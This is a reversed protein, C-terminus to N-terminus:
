KNVYEIMFEILVEKVNKGERAVKAKFANRLEKNVEFNMRVLTRKEINNSLGDFNTVVHKKTV